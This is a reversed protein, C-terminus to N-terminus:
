GHPIVEAKFGGCTNIAVEIWSAIALVQDDPRESNVDVTCVDRGNADVIVGLEGPSLSVPLRVDQDALLQVFAETTEPKEFRLDAM